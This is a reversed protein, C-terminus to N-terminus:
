RETQNFENKKASCQMMKHQMVRYLWSGTHGLGLKVMFMYSWSCTHGNGQIVMVRHSWSMKLLATQLQPALVM